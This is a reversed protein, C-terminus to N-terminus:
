PPITAKPICKNMIELFKAQWCQWAKNVDPNMLAAWDTADILNCATEWDAHKYRWVVRQKPISRSTKLSLTALLGNHDSTSFALIKTCSQVLDQHSALLLDIISSTGNHHVHTYDDVTQFLRYTSMISNLKAYLPHSCNSVDINFDGVIIFNTYQAINLYDLHECIHDLIEPASSPPRYFLSVSEQLFPTTNCLLQYSSSSIPHLFFPLISCTGSISYFM